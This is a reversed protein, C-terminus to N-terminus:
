LVTTKETDVAALVEDIVLDCDENYVRTAWRDFATPEKNIIIVTKGQKGLVDFVLGAAPFVNLSTGVAIIHTADFQAFRELGGMLKKNLMEGFLVVDPRTKRSDCDMCNPAGVGLWSHINTSKCRMCKATMVGHVHAVNDSGAREHLDDINQTAVISEHKKQFAAITKHAHTPEVVMMKASLPGWHRDWLEDLHMGYRNSHSKAELDKDKWSSGGDRYTPIGANASIGAGTVFLVSM